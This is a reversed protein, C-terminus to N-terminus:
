NTVDPARTITGVTLDVCFHSLLPNVEGMDCLLKLSVSALGAWLGATGIVRSYIV